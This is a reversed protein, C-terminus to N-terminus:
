VLLVPINTPAIEAIVGMLSLIAPSIGTVFDSNGNTPVTGLVQTM